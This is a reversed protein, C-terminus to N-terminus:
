QTVGHCWRRRSFGSEQLLDNRESLSSTRGRELPELRGRQRYIALGVASGHRFGVAGGFPDDPRMEFFVVRCSAMTPSSSPAVPPVVPRVHNMSGM